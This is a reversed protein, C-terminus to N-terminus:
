ISIRAHLSMSKSEEAGFKFVKFPIFQSEDLVIDDGPGKGWHRLIGVMRFTAHIPTTLLAPHLMKRKFELKRIPYKTVPNQKLSLIGNGLRCFHM